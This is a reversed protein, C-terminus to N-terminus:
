ASVYQSLRYVVYAGGLLVGWFVMGILISLSGDADSEREINEIRAFHRFRSLIFHGPILMLVDFLRMWLLGVIVISLGIYTLLETM